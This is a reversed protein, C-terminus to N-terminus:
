KVGAEIPQSVAEPVDSPPLNDQEGQSDRVDGHDAHSNEQVPVLGM